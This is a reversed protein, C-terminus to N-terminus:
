TLTNFIAGCTNKLDTSVLTWSTGVILEANTPSVTGLTYSYGKVRISYAWENQVELLLNQQGRVVGADVTLTESDVGVLAGDTLAMLAKGADMDLSASDTVLTPIGFTPNSGENITNGAVNWLKEAVSTGMLNYYTTSHMVLLKISGIQDGFKGLLPPIDEYTVDALGNGDIMPTAQDLIAGQGCALLTNLQDAMSADAAAEGVLMSFTDATWGKKKFSDLTNSIFSYRNVKPNIKSLQELKDPTIDTIDAPDRHKAMTAEALEKFFDQKEFDGILSETTLVIAGNSAGNFAEVNQQLKEIYAMSAVADNIVFDAKTGAAM